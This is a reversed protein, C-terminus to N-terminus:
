KVKKFYFIYNGQSETKPLYKQEVVLTDETLRIIYVEQKGTKFVQDPVAVKGIFKTTQVMNKFSIKMQTKDLKYKGDITANGAPYEEKYKSDASYTCFYPKYQSSIDTSDNLIVKECEWKGILADTTRAETQGHAVTTALVATFVLTITWRTMKDKQMPALKHIPASFYLVHTYGNGFHTTFRLHLQLRKYDNTFPKQFFNCFGCTKKEGLIRRKKRHLANERPAFDNQLARFRKAGRSIM